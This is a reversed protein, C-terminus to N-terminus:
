RARDRAAREERRRGPAAPKRRGRPATEHEGPLRRQAPRHELGPELGRSIGPVDDLRLPPSPLPGLLARLPKRIRTGDPPAPYPAAMVRRAAHSEQDPPENTRHSRSTPVTWSTSSIAPRHAAATPAVATSTTRDCRSSRNRTSRCHSQSTRRGSLRTTGSKKTTRDASTRGERPRNRRISNGVPPSRATSEPRRAKATRPGESAGFRSTTSTSGSLPSASTWSRTGEDAGGSSSHVDPQPARRGQQEADQRATPHGHARRADVREDPQLRGPRDHRQREDQQRLSEVAGRVHADRHRKGEQREDPRQQDRAEQSAM